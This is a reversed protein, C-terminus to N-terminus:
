KLTSGKLNTNTHQALYLENPGTFSCFAQIPSIPNNSIEGFLSLRKYM